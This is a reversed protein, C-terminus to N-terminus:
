SCARMYYYAWDGTLLCEYMGDSNVTCPCEALRLFSSGMCMGSSAAECGWREPYYEYYDDCSGTCVNVEMEQLLNTCTYGSGGTITRLESEDIDGLAGPIPRDSLVLAVGDSWDMDFFSVDARDCFKDSALDISWIYAEDIDGLVVFHNKKPLHLIVQCGALSRLTQVDIRVARCYLGSRLALAKMAYLSTTGDAGDIM